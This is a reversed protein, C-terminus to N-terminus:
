LGRSMKRFASPTMGTRKKVQGIFNSMNVFGSQAAVQEITLDSEALLIFAHELRLM